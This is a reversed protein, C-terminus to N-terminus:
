RRSPFPSIWTSSGCPHAYRHSAFPRVPEDYRLLRTICTSRPPGVIQGLTHTLWCHSSGMGSAFGYTIGFCSTQSAYL